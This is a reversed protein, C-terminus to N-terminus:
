VASSRDDAPYATHRLATARRASRLRVLRSQVEPGTGVMGFKLVSESTAGPETGVDGPEWTGAEWSRTLPTSQSTWSDQFRAQLTRFQARSRGAAAKSTASLHGTRSKDAYPGKPGVPEKGLVATVALPPLPPHHHTTHHTTHTRKFLTVLGVYFRVLM